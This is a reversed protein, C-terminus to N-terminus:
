FREIQGTASRKVKYLWTSPIIKAGRPVDSAPIEDWVNREFIGRLEAQEAEIWREAFRSRMAAKRSAPEPVDEGAPLERAVIRSDASEAVQVV